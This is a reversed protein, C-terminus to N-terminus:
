PTDSVHDETCDDTTCGAWCFCTAFGFDWGDGAVTIISGDGFTHRRVDGTRWGDRWDISAGGHQEVLDRFTLPESDDTPRTKFQSGDNDLANAIQQAIPITTM